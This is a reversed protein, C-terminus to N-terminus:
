LHAFLATFLTDGKANYGEYYTTEILTLSVSDELFKVVDENEAEFVSCTIYLFYGGKKVAKAANAAISKQLDAYYHMKEKTFYYLAEPTRSWTGSGSCPADCIVVDYKKQTKFNPAGVDAVFSRYDKIGARKFREKLNVLISERVDSVTLKVDSYEDWLLISKGGSAACCDWVEVPQGSLKKLLGHLVQQSSRDQVVAEKDLLLVSDIKTSNAVAICNEFPVEFPINNVELKSRVNSWQGPRVRLFLLPQILHSTNFDEAEIESSLANNFPFIQLATANKDLMKIKEHLPLHAANNWDKDIAELFDNSEASCLFLARKIREEVALKKFLYGLRFYCYCAHAILKRDRSGFKKHQRFYNKLWAAFPVAGKYEDLIIQANHIYAGAHMACFHALFLPQM